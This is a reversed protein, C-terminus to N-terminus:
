NIFFCSELHHLDLSINQQFHQTNESSVLEYLNIYTTRKKLYKQEINLLLIAEKCYFKSKVLLIDVILAGREREREVIRRHTARYKSDNDLLCYIKSM